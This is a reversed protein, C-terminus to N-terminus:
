YIRLAEFLNTKLWSKEKTHELLKNIYARRCDESEKYAYIPNVICNGRELTTILVNNRKLQIFAKRLVAESVARMGWKKRHENYTRITSVSTSIENTARDMIEALYFFVGRTTPSLKEFDHQWNFYIKVGSKVYRKHYSAKSFIGERDRTYYDVRTRIFRVKANAM